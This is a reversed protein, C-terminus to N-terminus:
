SENKLFKKKTAILVLIKRKFKFNKMLIKLTQTKVVEGVDIVSKNKNDVVKGELLAVSSNKDKLNLDKHISIYRLIIATNNFFYVNQGNKKPKKFETFNGNKEYMKEQNEYPKKKRGYKDKIRILDLKDYPTEFELAQISKRSRNSLKHFLGKRFVQRSLPKTKFTNKKYLGIQVHADGNLIIFATKKESHAHLSTEKKPEINLYTICLKKKIKFIVYEYGWPKIVVKSDYINNKKKMLRM